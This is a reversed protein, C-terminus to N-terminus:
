TGDTGKFLATLDLSPTQARTACSVYERGSHTRRRVSSRASSALRRRSITPRLEAIMRTWTAAELANFAGRVESLDYGFREEHSPTRTRSTRASTASRVADPLPDFLTELPIEVESAAVSEDHRERSRTLAGEAERVVSTPANRGNPRRGSAPHM